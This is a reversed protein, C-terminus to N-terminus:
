RNATRYRPYGGFIKQQDNSSLGLCQIHGAIAKPSLWPHDSAYLM